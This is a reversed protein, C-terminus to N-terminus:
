LLYSVGAIEFIRELEPASYYEIEIRGSTGDAKRTHIHVRTGLRQELRRELEQLAPNAAVRAAPKRRPPTGRRDQVMAEADRVTLGRERVLSALEQQEQLSAAGLLARAHGPSLEGHQMRAQLDPPLQLLRLTNAVTSRTKGLREALDQQTMSFEDILRRYGRAEEIPNLDERQVNELLALKLAERADVDRVIVPVRQLGALRAARWRREGAILEFEDGRPCVLLPQLVGNERISTALEELTTADFFERPQYRNARIRDIDVEHPAAPAPSPSDQTATATVAPEDTHTPILADLGRGLTKRM